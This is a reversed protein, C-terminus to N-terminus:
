ELWRDADGRSVVALSVMERLVGELEGRMAVSTNDLRWEGM